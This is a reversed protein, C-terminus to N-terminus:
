RSLARSLILIEEKRHRERKGFERLELPSVVLKLTIYAFGRKCSKLHSASSGKEMTHAFLNPSGTLVDALRGSLAQPIYCNYCRSIHASVESEVDQQM